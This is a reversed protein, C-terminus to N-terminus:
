RGAGTFVGTFTLVVVHFRFQFARGALRGWWGPCSHRGHGCSVAPRRLPDWNKLLARIEDGPQDQAWHSRGERISPNWGGCCCKLHLKTSALILQLIFSIPVKNNMYNMQPSTGLFIYHTGLNMMQCYDFPLSSPCTRPLRHCGSRRHHQTGPTLPVPAGTSLASSTWGLACGPSM